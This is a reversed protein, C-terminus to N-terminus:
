GCWLRVIRGQADLDINLRAASYDETIPMGPEIVRTGQPLSMAALVSRDRGVLDQMGSAGCSSRDPPVCAGLVLSALLVM